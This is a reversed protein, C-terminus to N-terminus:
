TVSRRIRAGIGTVIVHPITSAWRAWDAITPAGSTAPGFITAIAGLPPACAGTDIVIQDMSVQGVVPYWSGGFSVSAAPSIERPIGDAYGLGLVCLHTPRDTVHQAGYGVATKGAVEAVHVVPATLTAAEHLPVRRSPDIGVLAAGVRVLDFHTAPDTLAAASAGLHTTIQTLGRDRLSARARRITSVATANLSPDASDARALHGMLGVLRILGRHHADVLIERLTDWEGPPCGGRAIGADIHAHVRLPRAPQQRLLAQAEDVSAVAM